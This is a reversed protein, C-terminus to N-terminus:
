KNGELVEIRHKLKDITLQLEEKEKRLGDIEIQKFYIENDKSELAENLAKFVAKLEM